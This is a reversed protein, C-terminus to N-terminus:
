HRLVRKYLLLPTPHCSSQSLSVLSVALGWSPLNAARSLRHCETNETFSNLKSKHYGNKATFCCAYLLFTQVLIDVLQRIMREKFLLLTQETLLSKNGTFYNPYACCLLKSVLELSFALNQGEWHGQSRRHRRQQSRWCSEQQALSGWNKFHPGFSQSEFKTVTHQSLLNHHDQIAIYWVMELAGAICINQDPSIPGSYDIRMCNCSCKRM